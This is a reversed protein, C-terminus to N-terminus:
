KYFSIAWCLKQLPDCFAAGASFCREAFGAISANLKKRSTQKKIIPKNKRNIGRRFEFKLFDFVSNQKLFYNRSAIIGTKEPSVTLGFKSLRDNLKQYFL